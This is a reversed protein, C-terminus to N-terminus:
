PNPSGTYRASEARLKLRPSTRSAAAVADGRDHPVPIAWTDTCPTPPRPDSLAEPPPLDGEYAWWLGHREALQWTKKVQMKGAM